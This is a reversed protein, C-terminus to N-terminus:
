ASGPEPMGVSFKQRGFCRSYSAGNSVDLNSVKLSLGITRAQELFDLLMQIAPQFNGRAAFVDSFVVQLDSARPELFPLCWPRQERSKKRALAGHAQL